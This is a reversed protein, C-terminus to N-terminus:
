EVENFRLEMHGGQGNGVIETLPVLVRREPQVRLMKKWVVGKGNLAVLEGRAVRSFRLQLDNMGTSALPLVIRQPMSYKIASDAISIHLQSKHGPLGGALDDAIWHGTQQGERWSWGATEVPRLLNGTAFYAPDSCRGFQDVVPGGSAPDIDLHGTRALAAEPTFRGTLIIGDCDISRQDRNAAEVMVGTVRRDGQISLLRTSLHLPIGTLRPLLASPWRAVVRSAEDIMGVPHIGAMRCTVIASFSVLETGVILPRDFPKVNKLYVMSQLTGTNFVGLGRSGSILRAARPGERVGTAIVARSATIEELGLNSTVLLQGGPRAAVVTTSLRLEVGASRARQTLKQAYRPGSLVRTFERMGFPSHGCHRPIGGAESERDFVVVRGVGRRKLETAAALGAPGAGIVAVDYDTKIIPVEDTM